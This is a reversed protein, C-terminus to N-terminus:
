GRDRPSPSTYLLCTYTGPQAYNYTTHTQSGTSVIPSGDGYDWTYVPNTCSDSYGIQGNINPFRPCYFIQSACTDIVGGDLVMSPIDCVSCDGQCNTIEVIESDDLQGNVYSNVTHTGNGDFCHLLNSGVYEPSNADYTTIGDVVVSWTNDLGDGSHVGAEIAICCADSSSVQAGFVYQAFTMSSTTLIFLISLLSNKM